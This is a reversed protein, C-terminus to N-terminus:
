LFASSLVSISSCVLEGFKKTSHVRRNIYTSFPLSSICRLSIPPPIPRAQARPVSAERKKEKRKKRIQEASLSHALRMLLAASGALSATGNTTTTPNGSSDSSRM